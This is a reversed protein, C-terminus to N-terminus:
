PLFLFNQSMRKQLHKGSRSLPRGTEWRNQDVAKQYMEDFMAAVREKCRGLMERANETRIEDLFGLITNQM